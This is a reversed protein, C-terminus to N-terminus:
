SGDQAKRSTATMKYIYIINGSDIFKGNLVISYGTCCIDGNFRGISIVISSIDSNFDLTVQGSLEAALLQAFAEASPRAGPVPPFLHGWTSWAQYFLSPFPILYSKLINCISYLIYIYLINNYIITNHKACYINSICSWISATEVFSHRSLIRGFIRSKSGFAHIPVEFKFGYQPRVCKLTPPYGSWDPVVTQGHHIPSTFLNLM